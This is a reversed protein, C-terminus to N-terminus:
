SRLAEVASNGIQEVVYSEPVDRVRVDERRGGSGSNAMKSKRIENIAQFFNESRVVPSASRAASMAAKLVCTSIDSGSLGESSTALIGIDGDFPMNAPVYKEWLKRRCEEDPLEFDVHAVIRRMFAPDYNEIFNTAFIVLGPHSNMLVLLVSRTQNVSVDTAQTMNTVRRSLIADAEDFFLVAGSEAARAFLKTINKSTEGVYKSELEAYNAVILPLGLEHAVAHAAMTKGTGPPGYFNIANHRGRKHTDKLGWQEFVISENKKYSLFDLLSSMTRGPLILDSLTYESVRFLEGDSRADGSEAPVGEQGVDLRRGIGM